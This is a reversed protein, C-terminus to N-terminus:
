ASRRRRSLLILVSDLLASAYLIWFPEFLVRFRARVNATVMILVFLGLFFAGWLQHFGFPRERMALALLGGLAAAYLWPLGDIPVRPVHAGPLSLPAAPLLAARQWTEMARTLIDGPIPRYIAALFVGASDPPDIARGWLLPALRLADPDSLVELQGASAYDNFTGAPLERHAVIFKRLALGPLAAPNRLLIELGARKGAQDPDLGAERLTRQLQKRLPVLKPPGDGTAGQLALPVLPQVREAVGPSAALQPPTLHLVSTFLLLGSQGTRTVAFVAAIWVVAIPVARRLSRQDWLTRVVLVLVFAGFLRGEPRAGALWLYSVLLAAFSTRGPHRWFATGALAFFVVGFIALPEALATHEYWLLVPNLATLVTVPAIFGRWHQLWAFTLLGVGFVTLVGLLHQVVALFPLVPVHFLAPVCALAPALFTKKGDLVWAGHDLLREATELAAGTDNHVFAAPMFALLFARLLVALLAAPLCLLLARRLDPPCARRLAARIERPPRVPM